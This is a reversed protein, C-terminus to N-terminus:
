KGFAANRKRKAGNQIYNYIKIIFLLLGLNKLIIIKKNM